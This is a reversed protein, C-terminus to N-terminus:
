FNVGTNFSDLLVEGRIYKTIELMKGEENINDMKRKKKNLNMEELFQEEDELMEEDELFEDEIIKQEKKVSKSKICSM